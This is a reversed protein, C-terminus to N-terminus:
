EGHQANNRSLGRAYYWEGAAAGNEPHVSSDCANCYLNQNKQKCTNGTCRWLWCKQCPAKQPIIHGLPERDIAMRALEVAALRRENLSHRCEDDQCTACGFDGVRRVCLACLAQQVHRKSPCQFGQQLNEGYDGCEGCCPFESRQANERLANTLTNTMEMQDRYSMMKLMRMVGEVAAHIQRAPRTITM